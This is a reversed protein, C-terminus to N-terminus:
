SPSWGAYFTSGMNTQPTTLNLKFEVVAPTPPEDFCPSIFQYQLLLKGKKFSYGEIFNKYEELNYRLEDCSKSITVTQKAKEVINNFIYPEEMLAISSTDIITYPEIWTSVIYLISVIVFASLVYFQAKKSKFFKKYNSLNRTRSAM